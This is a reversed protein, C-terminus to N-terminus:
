EEFILENFDDWIEDDCGVFSESSLLDEELVFPSPSKADEIFSM